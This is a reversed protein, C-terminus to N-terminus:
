VRAYLLKGKKDAYPLVLKVASLLVRFKKKQDKHVTKEQLHFRSAQHRRAPTNAYHGHIACHQVILIGVRPFSKIISAFNKDFKDM